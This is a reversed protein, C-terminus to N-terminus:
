YIDLSKQLWARAQEREDGEFYLWRDTHPHPIFDTPINPFLTKIPIDIFSFDATKIRDGLYEKIGKTSGNQMILIKKGLLRKLRERAQERYRDLPSGWPLTGWAQLGDYHDHSILGRWLSAIRDDHLGIYNVGIAGRSFGCLYLNRRDGGWNSCIADVMALAYAVTQGEDGWWTVSEREGGGEVFPLVLWIFSQGGCLGYGLCADDVKGTSGSKPFFNGTYECMVPWTGGTKWEPPLYLTAHLEAGEKGPLPFRVRKGPAPSGDETAPLELIQKRHNMAIEPNNSTLTAGSLLTM